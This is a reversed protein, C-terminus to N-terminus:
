SKGGIKENSYNMTNTDLKVHYTTEGSGSTRHQIVRQEPANIVLPASRQVVRMPAPAPAQTRIVEQRWIPNSVYRKTIHTTPREVYTTTPVYNRVPLFHRNTFGYGDRSYYNTRMLPPPASKARNQRIVM